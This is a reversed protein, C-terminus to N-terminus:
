KQYSNTLKKSTAIAGGYGLILQNSNQPWRQNFKQCKKREFEFFKWRKSGLKYPPFYGPTQGTHQQKELSHSVTSPSVSATLTEVAVAKMGHM